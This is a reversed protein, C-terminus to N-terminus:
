GRISRNRKTEDIPSTLAYITRNVIDTNVSYALKGNPRIISKRTFKLRRYEEIAETTTLINCSVMDGDVNIQVIDKVMTFSREVIAVGRKSYIM